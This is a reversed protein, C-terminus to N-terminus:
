AGDEDETLKVRLLQIDTESIAIATGRTDGSTPNDNLKGDADAYLTQGPTLGTAYRLRVGEQFITVEEGTKATRVIIGHVVEDDALGVTGDSNIKVLRGAPLDSGAKLNGSLRAVHSAGAFDLPSGEQDFNITTIEAM